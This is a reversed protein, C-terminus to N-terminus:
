KSGSAFSTFSPLLGASLPQVNYGYTWLFDDSSILIFSFIDYVIICTIILNRKCFRYYVCM